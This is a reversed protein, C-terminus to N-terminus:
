YKKTFLACICRESQLCSRRGTLGADDNDDEKNVSDQLKLISDNEAKEGRMKKNRRTM